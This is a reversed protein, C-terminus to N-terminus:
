KEILWDELIAKKGAEWQFVEPEKCLRCIDMSSNMKEVIIESTLNQQWISIRDQESVHVDIGFKQCYHKIVYPAPCASLYGNHYFHCQKSVCTDYAEQPDATGSLDMRQRFETIPPTIEYQLGCEQLKAKIESLMGETPPYLSIDIVINLESIAELIVSEIKKILLGNTVIHIDTHPFFRRVVRCYDLIQPNLFPEGGLLRIKYIVPQVKSMREINKEFSSIDEIDEDTAINSFHSCGKCKLNCSNMLHMELYDLHQMCM